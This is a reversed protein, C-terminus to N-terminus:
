TTGGTKVNGLSEILVVGVMKQVVPPASIASNLANIKLPKLPGRFIPKFFELQWPPKTKKSLFL